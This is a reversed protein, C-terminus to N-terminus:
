LGYLDRLQQPTGTETFGDLGHPILVRGDLLRPELLASTLGGVKRHEEVTIVLEAPGLSESLFDLDLPEVRTVGIVSVEEDAQEAARLCEAVVGGAGVLAVRAPRGWLHAAGSSGDPPRSLAPVPNRELRLYRPGTHEPGTLLTTLRHAEADDHPWWVAMGP